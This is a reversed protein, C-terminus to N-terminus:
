RNDWHPKRKDLFAGIGEVSDPHLMNSVMVEAAEKYAEAVPRELQRQFLQKGTAVTAAPKAAIREAFHLAQPLVQNGPVVRNVLGFRLGDEAGIMEGLLLMEMAQKRGINRTLAVMPSSCFLGINVGPTCFKATESAVALDCSAVLQCGAATATGNVAAIVPKPCLMVSQMLAACRQMIDTFHAEGRDADVRHSTMEKLDHGACFVPGNGTLVVARLERSATIDDFQAQLAALMADSLCNRTQPRNLTLCAISGRDDRLLIDENAPAPTSQAADAM